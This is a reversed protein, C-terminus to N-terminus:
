LSVDKESNGLMDSTRDFVFVRFHVRWMCLFQPVEGIMKSEEGVEGFVNM